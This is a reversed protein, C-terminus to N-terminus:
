AHEKLHRAVALRTAGWAILSLFIPVLLLTLWDGAALALGAILSGGLAEAPLWLLVAIAGLTGILAGALARLTTRTIFARAIYRDEAGVLRLVRIVEDNAALSAIASVAVMIAGAIATALVALIAIMRLKRATEVLPRRWRAHDDVVTGPLEAQLRQALGIPDVGDDNEIVEIMAPLGLSESPLDNGIWPSLYARQEQAPIERASSVGATKDLIALARAVEREAGEAPVPLRITLSRSLEASWRDAVHGAALAIALIFTALFAIAASATVTLWASFGSPPVVKDAPSRNFRTRWIDSIAIM